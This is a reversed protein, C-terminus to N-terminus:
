GEPALAQSCIAAMSQELVWSAQARATFITPHLVFCLQFSTDLAFGPYDSPSAVSDCDPGSNGVAFVPVMGAQFILVIFLLKACDASSRQWRYGLM